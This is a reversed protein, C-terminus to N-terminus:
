SQYDNRRSYEDSLWRESVYLEKRLVPYEEIFFRLVRAILNVIIQIMLNERAQFFFSPEAGQGLM